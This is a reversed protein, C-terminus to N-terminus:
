GAKVLTNKLHRLLRKWHRMQFFNKVRKILTRVRFVRWKSRQNGSTFFESGHEISEVDIFSDGGKISMEHLM